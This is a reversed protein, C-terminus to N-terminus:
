GARRARRLDVTRVFLLALLAMVAAVICYFYFVDIYSLITSQTQVMQEIVGLAQHHADAPPTGQAHLFRTVQDLGQRYSPSPPILHETLHLQHVQERRALVTGSISVGISGGLYRAVNILASAQNTSEPPLGAYSSSTIPIFLFPLGVTIYVRAWAFYSFDAAPSLSTLHYMAAAVVAMGFAMMYRPQVVNSAQGALPMLVLMALGGPMLALGSLMATYGFVTQTMQPMLQTTGFLIAGVALMMLFCTAFHRRGLLDLAVIPEKRTLEWPVLLVFALASVVAFATIYGSSFWDLRQGRELVVELCGLALAVLIFGIWDVHLGGALRERRERRLTEPEVLLWQVLGISLLGIPGNIFFIWHWSWNDTIWGGLTPGVTPAVVVAVGYIAFAQARQHAPFSDALISQESPAMGGGGLGQLVRFFILWTLNPALGCLISCLTFSAVCIMYFRKRGIVTALWGSVPVIVANAILYSTLVWTSEDVGAALGGAIYRLAVNAISTDLVQMFTALSVVGAILWPSRHGAASRDLSEGAGAPRAASM